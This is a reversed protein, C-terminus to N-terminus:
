HAAAGEAPLDSNFTDALVKWGGDAQKKWLTLYKGHDTVPKGKPGNLTLEYTGMTYGLDGGSSVGAKTPQWSLAYGPNAMLGSMWRQVAEKSTMAPMNPAFVAADDAFFAIFENVSKAGAAKSWQLDVDRLAAEEAAPTQPPVQPQQQECAALCAALGILISLIGGKSAHRM